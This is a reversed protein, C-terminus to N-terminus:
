FQAIIQIFPFYIKSPIKPFVKDSKHCDKNNEKKIKKSLSGPGSLHGTRVLAWSFTKTKLYPGLASLSDNATNRLFGGFNRTNSKM